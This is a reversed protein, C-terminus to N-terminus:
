KPKTYRGIIKASLAKQLALAENLLQEAASLRTVVEKSEGALDHSLADFHQAAAQANLLIVRLSTIIQELEKV